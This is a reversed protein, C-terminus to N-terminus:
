VYMARVRERIMEDSFGNQKGTLIIRVTKIENQRAFLYAVLPGVSFANYKQPRMTEMMRNDCWREFASPSEELAAAGEAYTTTGLYEKVSDTGGQAARVLENINLSGCPAMARKMFEQSKGTKAGRVAVKIDAIAVTSEAYDRIIEDKSQRGAAYIADLAARDIIIDCLQGDRTQLLTEYAERAANAMHGPLRSFEKNEVIGMMERGSIKADEYFINGGRVDTCVAKVAAKLNHYLKQLSLVDFVSLDPAVDMIAEWAKEEERKLMGEADVDADHAGWGKEELLQLCQETTKCNVLQDITSDTLLSTELARERAVAYTYELENM